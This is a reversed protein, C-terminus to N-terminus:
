RLGWGVAAAVLVCVVAIPMIQTVQWSWLLNEFHGWHLLLLPLGIDLISTWGRLRRSAWMLAASAVSLAAVDFFMGSRFDTGSIAYLTVLILKPLPIRHGNHPTWLWQLTVPRSGSAISIHDWEDYYPVDVGFVAVYGFAVLTLAAWTSWVIRPVWRRASSAAGGPLVVEHKREAPDDNDFAGM